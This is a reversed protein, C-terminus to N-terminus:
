SANQRWVPTLGFGNEKELWTKGGLNSSELASLCQCYYKPNYRLSQFFGWLVSMNKSKIQVLSLRTDSM